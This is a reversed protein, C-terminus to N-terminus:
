RFTKEDIAADRLEAIIKELPLLRTIVLESATHTLFDIANEIDKSLNAMITMIVLLHKDIDKQQAFKALQTM